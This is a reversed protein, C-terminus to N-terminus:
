LRSLVAAADVWSYSTLMAEGTHPQRSRCDSVTNSCPELDVSM